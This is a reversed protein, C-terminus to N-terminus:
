SRLASLPRGQQRADRPHKAEGVVQASYIGRHGSFLYAVVCALALYPAAPLGFLELGLLLCALPTNAAGAFVAVFGLGALLAVPLPLVAALASGLAAGIFFLPTVEGGKFGAGLTLATFLLKLAFAYAPLPAAFAAVITPVGLGLYRSVDPVLGSYHLGAALALLLAGGAAPRLPPWAIRASFAAQLRHTAEIFARAALGFLIAAGLTAAVTPLSLAPVVPIPYHTHGVGWARTVWDAGFAALVGPLLAAYRLRGLRGVELGFVAGALPTGFVSAFGASVGAVLLLRRERPRLRLQRAPLRRYLAAALAGGMQVATGERGASGGVLHTLLTGLLVLPAMRLPVGAGPQQMAEILQNNGRAVSQGLYHYLLGVALGGAPLLLLLAPHLERHRTVWALAVLFGASATGALLSVLGALVVWRLLFLLQPLPESLRRRTPSHPLPM